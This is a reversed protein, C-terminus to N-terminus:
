VWLDFGGVEAGSVECCSQFVSALNGSICSDSGIGLILLVTSTINSFVPIAIWNM